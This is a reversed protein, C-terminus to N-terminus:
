GINLYLVQSVRYLHTLFVNLVDIIACSYDNTCMYHRVLAHLIEHKAVAILYEDSNNGNISLPCFNM